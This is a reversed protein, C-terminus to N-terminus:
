DRASLTISADGQENILLLTRQLRDDDFDQFAIPEPTTLTLEFSGPAEAFAAVEESARQPDEDRSILLVFLGFAPAFDNDPNADSFLYDFLGLDQLSIALQTFTLAGPNVGQGALLNSLLASFGSVTISGQMAFLTDARADFRHIHDTNTAADFSSQLALALNVTLPIEAATEVGANHALARRLMNDPDDSPLVFAANAAFDLGAYVGAEDRNVGLAVGSVVAMPPEDDNSVTVDNITLREFALDNLTIPTDGTQAMASVFTDFFATDPNDFAVSRATIAQGTGPNAYRLEGLTMAPISFVLDESAEIAIRVDSATVSFGQGDSYRVHAISAGNEDSVVDSIELGPVGQLGLIEIAQEGTLTVIAADEPAPGTDICATATLALAVAFLPAIRSLM